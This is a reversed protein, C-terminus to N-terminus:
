CRDSDANVNSRFRREGHAPIQLLVETQRRSEARSLVVAAPLPVLDEFTEVFFALAGFGGVAALKLRQQLEAARV